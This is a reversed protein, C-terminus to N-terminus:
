YLGGKRLYFPNMLFTFGGPILKNVVTIPITPATPLIFKVEDLRRKSDRIQELADVWGNATDGLGHCWIVTATHQGTPKLVLPAVRRLSSSM